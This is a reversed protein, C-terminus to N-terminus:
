AAGGQLCLADLQCATGFSGVGRLEAGVEALEAARALYADDGGFNWGLIGFDEYLEGGWLGGDIVEGVLAGGDDARRAEGLLLAHLDFFCRLAYGDHEGRVHADPHVQEALNHAVEGRLEGAVVGLDDLRVVPVFLIRRRSRRKQECLGGGLPSPLVQTLDRNISPFSNRRAFLTLDPYVGQPAPRDYSLM